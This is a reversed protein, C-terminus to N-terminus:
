GDLEALLRAVERRYALDEKKRHAGMSWLALGEEAMNPRFAKRPWDARRYAPEITALAQNAISLAYQDVMWMMGGPTLAQRALLAQVQGAFARAASTPAVGVCAGSFQWLPGMPFRGQDILAIDWPVGWGVEPTWGDVPPLPARMISDADVIVIPSPTEMRDILEPLRLFRM